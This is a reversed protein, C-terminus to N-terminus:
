KKGDLFFGRRAPVADAAAAYRLRGIAAHGQTQFSIEVGVCPRSSYFCREVARTCNLRPCDFICTPISGALRLNLAERREEASACAADVGSSRATRAHTVEVHKVRSTKASLSTERKLTAVTGEVNIDITACEAHAECVQAARVCHPVRPQSNPECKMLCANRAWPAGIFADREPCSFDDGAFVGLGRTVRRSTAALAAEAAAAKAERFRGLRRGGRTSSSNTHVRKSSFTRMLPAIQTTTLELASSLEHDATKRLLCRAEDLVAQADACIRGCGRESTALIIPSAKAADRGLQQIIHLLEHRRHRRAHRMAHKAAYTECGVAASGGSSGSLAFMLLGIATTAILCATKPAHRADRSIVGTAGM